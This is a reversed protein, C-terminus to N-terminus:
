KNPSFFAIQPGTSVYIKTRNGVKSKAIIYVKCYKFVLGTKIAPSTKDKM